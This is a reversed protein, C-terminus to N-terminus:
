SRTRLRKRIRGEGESGSGSGSGSGSEDETAIEEESEDSGMASTSSGEVAEVDEFGARGEGVGAAREAAREFCGLAEIVRATQEIQAKTLTNNEATRKALIHLGVEVGEMSDVLRELLRSTADKEETGSGGDAKRKKGKGGKGDRPRKARTEERPNAQNQIPSENDSDDSIVIPSAASAAASITQSSNGVLAM